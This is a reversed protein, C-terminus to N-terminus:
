SILPAFANRQITPDPISVKQLSASEAQWSVSHALSFGNWVIVRARGFICFPAFHGTPIIRLCFEVSVAVKFVQVSLVVLPLFSSYIKLM